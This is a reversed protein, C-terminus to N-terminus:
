GRHERDSPDWLQFMSLSNPSMPAVPDYFMDFLLEHFNDVRPQADLPHLRM